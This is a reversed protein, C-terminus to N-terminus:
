VIPKEQAALSLGWLDLAGFVLHGLGLTWWPWAVSGVPIGFAATAICLTALGASLVAFAWSWWWVDGIRQAVLVMFMALVLGMIAGARVWVYQAEPPQKMVTVVLSRPALAFGIAAIFWALAQAKLVRQLFTM